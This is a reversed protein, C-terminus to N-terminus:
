RRNRGPLRDPRGTLDRVHAPHEQGRLRTRRGRGQGGTCPLAAEVRRAVEQQSWDARWKRNAQADMYHTSNVAMWIVGKGAYKGALDIMTSKTVHHRKVFPCDPNFWELVVVKGKLDSLSVKKGDQDKLTFDPAIPDIRNNWALFTKTNAPRADKAEAVTKLKLELSAKGPICKDRCALWDVEASLILSGPQKIDKSPTITATLLVENQYGYETVDGPQRFTVPRPWCVPGISYGAPVKFKVHTALGADGPNKWYIHWGPKITMLVGVTFPKGTQVAKANAILKAQVLEAPATTTENSDAALVMGALVMCVLVM